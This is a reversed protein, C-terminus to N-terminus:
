WWGTCTSSNSGNHGICAQSQVVGLDDVMDTYADGGWFDVPQTITWGQTNTVWAVDGNDSGDDYVKAWAAACNTSYRLELIGSGWRGVGTKQYITRADSSCGESIPDLGTCSSAYCSAAFASTATAPLYIGTVLATALLLRFFRKRRLM